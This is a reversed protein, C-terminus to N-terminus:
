SVYQEQLLLVTEFTRNGPFFISIMFGQAAEGERFSAESYRTDLHRPLSQIPSAQASVPGTSPSTEALPLSDDLTLPRPTMRPRRRRPPTLSWLWEAGSADRRSAARKLIESVCGWCEASAVTWRRSWGTRIFDGLFPPNHELLPPTRGVGTSSPPKM